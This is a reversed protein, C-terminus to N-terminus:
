KEAVLIPVAQTAHAEEVNRAHSLARDYFFVQQLEAIRLAYVVRQNGRTGILLASGGHDSDDRISMPEFAVLRGSKANRIEIMQRADTTFTLVYNGAPLVALGWHATYPLTFKGRVEGQGHAVSAFVCSALLVATLLTGKMASREFKTKM